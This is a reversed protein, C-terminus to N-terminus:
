INFEKIGKLKKYLETDMFNYYEDFRCFQSDQKLTEATPRQGPDITFCDYMFGIATPTIGKEVESPIPPTQNNTLKYIASM